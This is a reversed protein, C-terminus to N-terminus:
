ILSRNGWTERESGCDLLELPWDYWPGRDGAPAPRGRSRTRNATLDGRSRYRVLFRPIPGEDLRPEPDEFVSGPPKPVSKGVVASGARGSRPRCRENLQVVCCELM